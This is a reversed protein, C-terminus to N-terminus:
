VGAPHGLGGAVTSHLVMRPQQLLFVYARRMECVDFVEGYDPSQEYVSPM